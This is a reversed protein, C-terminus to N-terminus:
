RVLVLLQIKIWRARKKIINTRTSEAKLQRSVFEVHYHHSIYIERTTATFSIRM